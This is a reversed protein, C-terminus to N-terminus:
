DVVPGFSRGTAPVTIGQLDKQGAPLSYSPASRWGASTSLPKGSLMKAASLTAAGDPVGRVTRYTFTSPDIVQEVYFAGELGTAPATVGRIIVKKGRVLGHGPATVTAVENSVTIATVDPEAFAEQVDATDTDARNGTGGWKGGTATDLTGDTIVQAATYSVTGSGNGLTVLRQTSNGRQAWYNEDLANPVMDDWDIPFAANATGVQADMRIIETKGSFTCGRLQNLRAFYRMVLGTLNATTPPASATPVLFTSFSRTNSTGNIAYWADRVRWTGNFAKSPSTPDLGSILFSANPGLYIETGDWQITALNYTVGGETIVTSTDCTLATLNTAFTSNGRYHMARVTSSMSNSHFGCHTFLHDGSIAVVPLGQGARADNYFLDFTYSHPQGNYHSLVVGTGNTNKSYWMTSQSTIKPVFEQVDMTPKGTLMNSVTCSTFDVDRTHGQITVTPGIRNSPGPTDQWIWTNSFTVNGSKIDVANELGRSIRSLGPVTAGVTVQSNPHVNGGLQFADEGAYDFECDSLNANILEYRGGLLVTYASAPNSPAYVTLVNTASLHWDEPGTVAGASTQPPTFRRSPFDMWDRVLHAGAPSGLGSIDRQWRNSGLSTWDAVVGKVNTSGSGAFLITHEGSVLGSGADYARVRTLTYTGGYSITIGTSASFQSVVDTLTASARLQINRRAGRVVLNSVSCGAAATANRPDDPPGMFLGIDMRGGATQPPYQLTSFASAPNTASQVYLTSTTTNFHYDGPATVAAASTKIYNGAKGNIVLLFGGWGGSPAPLTRFWRAATGDQTWDGTAGKANALLDIVPDNGSGYAQVTTGAAKNTLDLRETFVSGRRLNLTDGAAMVLLAKGLTKFPAGSSTGANTDFGNQSDVFWSTALLGASARLRRDLPLIAAAGLGTALVTRRTPEM